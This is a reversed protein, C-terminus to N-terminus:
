HYPSWRSRCEKGVRREESRRHISRADDDFIPPLYPRAAALARPGGIWLAQRLTADPFFADFHALAGVGSFYNAAGAQVRIGDFTSM